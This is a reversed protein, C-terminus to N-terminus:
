LVALKTKAIRVSLNTAAFPTFQLQVWNGGMTNISASFTGLVGNNTNMGYETKYVNTGDQVLNIETVQYNGSDVLQIFYKASTYATADFTDLTFTSNGSIGTQHYSSQVVGNSSLYDYTVNTATGTLAISSTSASYASTQRSGDPFTIGGTVVTIGTGTVSLVNTLTASNIPTVYLDIQSGYNGTVGNGSWTQSARSVISAPQLQADLGLYAQTGGGNNGFFYIGGLQDGNQTVTTLTGSSNWRFNKLSVSANTVENGQITVYPSSATGASISVYKQDGFDTNDFVALAPTKFSIGNSTTASQITTATLLSGYTETGYTLLSSGSGGSSGTYGMAGQSGTYGAGASGTYATTQVSNDPFKLSNVSTIDSNLVLTNGNYANIYNVHLQSAPPYSSGDNAVGIISVGGGTFDINNSAESIKVTVFNSNTGTSGITLQNTVTLNYYTSTSTGAGSSGTYGMAGMSGVYGQSGTYGTGASGTYGGVNRGGPTIGDGVYLANTDTTWIPEGVLPTITQLEALSGRRFQLSM